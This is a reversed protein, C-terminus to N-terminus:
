QLKLFNLAFNFSRFCSSTNVNTEFLEDSECLAPPLLSNPENCKKLIKVVDVSSTIITSIITRKGYTIITRKGYVCQVCKPQSHISASINHQSEAGLFM